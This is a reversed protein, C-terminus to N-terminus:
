AHGKLYLLIIRNFLCTIGVGLSTLDCTKSMRDLLIILKSELLEVGSFMLFAIPM